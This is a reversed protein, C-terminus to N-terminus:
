INYEEDIDANEIWLEQGIQKKYKRIIKKAETDTTAISNLIKLAERINETIRYEYLMRYINLNANSRSHDLENIVYNIFEDTHVHEGGKYHYYDSGNFKRHLCEFFAESFVANKKSKKIFFYLLLDTNTFAYGNDKSIHIYQTIDNLKKKEEPSLQEPNVYWYGPGLRLYRGAKDLFIETASFINEKRKPIIDDYQGNLRNFCYESYGKKDVLNFKDDRYKKSAKLITRSYIVDDIQTPTELNWDKIFSDIDEEADLRETKSLVKLNKLENHIFKKVKVMDLKIVFSKSKTKLFHKELLGYIKETETVLFVVKHYKVLYKLDEIDAIDSDANDIFIITKKNDKSQKTNELFAKLNEISEAFNLNFYISKFFPERVMLYLEYAKPTKGVGQKSKIIIAKEDRKPKLYKRYLDKITITKESDVIKVLESKKIMKEIVDGNDYYLAEEALRKLRNHRSKKSNKRWSKSAKRLINNLAVGVLISVISTVTTMIVPNLVLENFSKIDFM